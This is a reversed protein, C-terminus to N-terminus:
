GQPTDIFERYIKGLAQVEDDISKVAGIGARLRGLLGPENIVRQMQSSLDQVNSREFLLGNVEHQVLVSMGGLNTAIVPIKAALAEQVVLPSNEYWVSPVVVIDFQGLIEGLQDRVFAGKFQIRPCSAAINRLQDTYSPEKNLDGFVSLTATSEAPLTKFAKLV